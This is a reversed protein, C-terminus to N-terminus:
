EHSEAGGHHPMASKGTGLELSWVFRNQAGFDYKYPEDGRLFDYTSRGREIAGKLELAIVVIGPSIARFQVDYGSNYLAVASGRDFSLVSAIEVDNLSLMALRVWGRAALAGIADSFFAQIRPELFQAKRVDGSSRHLQYFRPLAVSLGGPDLFVRLNLEGSSEARRMKRRLEHRDTRSLSSLYGEWTDPLVVAPCPEVKRAEAFERGPAGVNQLLVSEEPIPELMVAVKEGAERLCDLLADAAQGQHQPTALLDAYDTTETSGIFRVTPTGSLDVMLPAIGLIEDGEGLTVIHPQRDLQFHAWWTSTWEWSLFVPADPCADFLAKWPAELQAFADTQDWITLNM